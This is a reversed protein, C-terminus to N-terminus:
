SVSLFFPKECMNTEEEKERKKVDEEKKPNFRYYLYVYIVDHHLCNGVTICVIELRMYLMM